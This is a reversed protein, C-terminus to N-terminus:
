DFWAARKSGTVLLKLTGDPLALSQIVRATIGVVHLDNATPHDDAPRRQTLALIGGGSAMASEVARMSKDRGVFLPAVMRPFLVLDRMPLVPMVGVPIVDDRLSTSWSKSTSITPQSSKITAALLNWDQFGLTKAILELCESYTLSVSKAKLAQRLTQAMVKADRFDRM